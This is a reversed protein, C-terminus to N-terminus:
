RNPRGPQMLVKHDTQMECDMSWIGTWPAAAKSAPRWLQRCSRQLQDLFPGSILPYQMDRVLLLPVGLARLRQFEAAAFNSFEAANQGPLINGHAFVPLVYGQRDAYYYLEPHPMTDLIAVKQRPASHQRMAQAEQWYQWNIQLRDQLRYLSLTLTGGWFLIGLSLRIWQKCRATKQWVYVWAQGGLLAAPLILPLQYYEHLVNFVPFAAMFILMGTFWSLLIFLGARRQYFAAAQNWRERRSYQQREAGQRSERWHSIVWHIGSGALLLAVLWTLHYELLRSGFLKIWTDPQSWILLRMLWAESKFFQSGVSSSASILSSAANTSHAPLWVYWAWAPLLALALTAAACAMTILFVSRSNHRLAATLFIMIWPAALYLSSIKLVFSLALAAVAAGMWRWHRTVLWTHLANIASIGFLLLLPEPMFVRTYYVAMPLIAFLAAAAHAARSSFLSRALYWIQLQVGLACFVATLRGWGEWVGTIHYFLSVIAPFLPFAAFNQVGIVDIQPALLEMGSRYFNRAIMATFTQRWSAYDLLPQTVGWLRLGLGLVLIYFFVRRDQAPVKFRSRINAGFQM